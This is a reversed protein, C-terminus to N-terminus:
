PAAAFLKIMELSQLESDAQDMMTNFEDLERSSLLLKVGECPTPIVLSRLRENQGPQVNDKIKKLWWRFTDFEETKFTVFLNGYSM